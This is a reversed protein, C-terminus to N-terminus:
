EGLDVLIHAHFSVLFPDDIDATEADHHREIAWRYKYDENGLRAIFPIIADVFAHTTFFDGVCSYTLLARRGNFRFM